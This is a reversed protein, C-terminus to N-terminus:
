DGKEGEGRRFSQILRPSVSRSSLSQKHSKATPHCIIHCRCHRSMKQVFPSTVWVRLPSMESTFVLTFETFSKIRLRGLQTEESHKETNRHNGGSEARGTKESKFFLSEDGVPGSGKSMSTFLMGVSDISLDGEHPGTELESTGSEASVGGFFPVCMKSVHQAQQHRPSSHQRRRNASPSCVFLDAFRKLVPKRMPSTKLGEEKTNLGSISGFSRDRHIGPDSAGDPKRPDLPTKISAPQTQQSEEITHIAMPGRHSRFRAAPASNVRVSIEPSKPPNPALTTKNCSKCLLSHQLPHKSCGKPMVNPNQEPTSVSEVWRAVRSLNDPAPDVPHRQTAWLMEPTVHRPLSRSHSASDNPTIILDDAETQKKSEHNRHKRSPQPTEATKNATHFHTDAKTTGRPQKNGHKPSM